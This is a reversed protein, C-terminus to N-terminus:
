FFRCERIKNSNKKRYYMNKRHQYYPKQAM